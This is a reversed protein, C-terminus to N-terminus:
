RCQGLTSGTLQCSLWPGAPTLLGTSTVVIHHSVWNFSYHETSTLQSGKPHGSKPNETIKRLQLAFALTCLVFNPSLECGGMLCLPKVQTGALLRLNEAQLLTLRPEFGLCGVLCLVGWVGLNLARSCWDKTLETLAKM